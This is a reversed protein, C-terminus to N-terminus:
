ANANASAAGRGLSDHGFLLCVLAYGTSKLLANRAQKLGEIGCVSPKCTTANITNPEGTVPEPGILNAEQEANDGVVKAIQQTPEDQGDGNLAPGERTKLLPQELRASAENPMSPVEGQLERFAAQRAAEKPLNERADLSERPM